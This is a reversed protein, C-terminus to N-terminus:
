MIMSEGTVDRSRLVPSCPKPKSVSFRLTRGLAAACHVRSTTCCRDQRAPRLARVCQAQSPDRALVIQVGCQMAALLGGVLAYSHAISSACLVIDDPRLQLVKVVVTRELGVGSLTRVALRSPGTSGSTLQCIAGGRELAPPLWCEGGNEHSLLTIGELEDVRVWCAFAQLFPVRRCTM